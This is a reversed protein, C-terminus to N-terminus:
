MITGCGDCSLEVGMVHCSRVLHHEEQLCHLQTKFAATGEEREQRLKAIIGSQEQSLLSHQTAGQRLAHELGKRRQEAEQMLQEHHSALQEHKVLM